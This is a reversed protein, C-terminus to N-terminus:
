GSAGCQPGCRNRRRRDSRGAQTWNRGPRRRAASWEASRTIRIGAGSTPRLLFSSDGALAAVTAVRPIERSLGTGVPSMVAHNGAGCEPSPLAPGDHRGVPFVFRKAGLEPQRNTPGSGPGLGERSGLNGARQFGSFPALCDSYIRSASRRRDPGTHKFNRRARCLSPADSTGRSDKDRLPRGLRNALGGRVGPVEQVHRPESGHDRASRKTGPLSGTRLVRFRGAPHGMKPFCQGFRSV